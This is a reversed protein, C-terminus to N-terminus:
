DTFARLNRNEKTRQKHLIAKLVERKTAMQNGNQISM